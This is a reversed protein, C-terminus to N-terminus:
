SPESKRSMHSIICLSVTRTCANFAQLSNSVYSFENKVEVGFVPPLDAETDPRELRAFLAEQVCQIRFDYSRAAPRAGKYFLHRKRGRPNRGRGRSEAAQLRPATGSVDDSNGHLRPLLVPCLYCLQPYSAYLSLAM